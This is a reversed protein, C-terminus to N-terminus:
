KPEMLRGGDRQWRAQHLRKYFVAVSLHAAQLALDDFEAKLTIFRVADKGRLDRPRRGALLAKMEADVAKISGDYRANAAKQAADSAVATVPDVLRRSLKKM